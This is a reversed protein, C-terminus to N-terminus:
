KFDNVAENIIDIARQAEKKTINLPPLLRIVNNSAPVVLLGKDRLTKTFDSNPVNCKIGLMLGKGFVESIVATNNSIIKNIKKELFAGLNIVNNLLKKKSIEKMVALSVACALQNGGFTSGHSGPTIYKAIKNKLLIAGIPFGGGLGKAMGVMDPKINWWEYAFVKGTRGVGCQVEDLIMLINNQNCIKRIDKLYNKSCVNIGGEGQIPEFFIAATKSNIKKKLGEIDDLPVRIFGCSCDEKALFGEKHLSNSGAQIGAITRGHFANDLVIINKKLFDGRQHHYKRAIKILGESAEAGSNCFFVKDAFSKKCLEQALIEQEKINYLNSTHWLKESQLKLAKLLVINSHGLCSVAIGSAFDLYKKKDDTFLWSGKGHTFSLNIRSYTSLLYNSM